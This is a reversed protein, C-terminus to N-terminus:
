WYTTFWIKKTLALLFVLTVTNKLPKGVAKWLKRQNWNRPISKLCTMSTDTEGQSDLVETSNYNHEGSDYIELWAELSTLNKPIQAFQIDNWPLCSWITLLFYQSPPWTLGDLQHFILLNGFASSFVSQFWVLYLSMTLLTVKRRPCSLM